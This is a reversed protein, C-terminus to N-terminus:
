EIAIAKDHSCIYVRRQQLHDGEETGDEHREGRSEKDVEEAYSEWCPRGLGRTIYVGATQLWCSHLLSHRRGKMLLAELEM